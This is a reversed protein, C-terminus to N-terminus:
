GPGHHPLHNRTQGPSRRRPWPPEDGARKKSRHPRNSLHPPNRDVMWYSGSGPEHAPRAVKYFVNSSSLYHRINSQRGTSISVWLCQLPELFRVKWRGSDPQTAFYPYKEAIKVYIDALLLRGDKSGLIAARILTTFSYNPKDNTDPLSDLTDHCDLHHANERGQSTPPIQDHNMSNPSHQNAESRLIHPPLTSNTPVHHTGPTTQDPRCGDTEREICTVVSSAGPWKESGVPGNSSSSAPGPLSPTPSDYSVDHNAVGWM